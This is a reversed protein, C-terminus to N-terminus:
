DRGYVCKAVSRTPAGFSNRIEYDVFAYLRTTPHQVLSSFFEPGGAVVFEYDFMMPQTSEIIRIRRYASPNLLRQKVGRECWLGFDSAQASSAPALSLVLVALASAAVASKAVASKAVASVPLASIAKMHFQEEHLHCRSGRDTMERQHKWKLRRHLKWKLRMGGPHFQTSAKAPCGAGRRPQNLTAPLAKSSATRNLLHFLKDRTPTTLELLASQNRPFHGHHCSHGFEFRFEDCVCGHQSARHDERHPGIGSATTKVAAATTAKTSASAAEVTTTAKAPTSAAEVAASKTAAAEMAAAKTRSAKAAAAHM